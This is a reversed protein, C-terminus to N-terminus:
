ARKVHRKIMELRAEVVQVNNEKKAIKLHLVCFREADRWRKKEICIVTLANLVQKQRAVDDLAIFMDLSQRYAVIAELFQKKKFFM